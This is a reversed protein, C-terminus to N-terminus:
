PYLVILPSSFGKAKEEAIDEGLPGLIPAVNGQGHQKSFHEAVLRQLQSKFALYSWHSCRGRDACSMSSLLHQQRRLAFAVTLGTPALCICQRRLVFPSDARSLHATPALCIPQRCLHSEPPRVFSSSSAPCSTKQPDSLSFIQLFESLKVILSKSGVM